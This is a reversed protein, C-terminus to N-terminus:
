LNKKAQEIIADWTWVTHTTQKFRSKLNRAERAHWARKAIPLEIARSRKKHWAHLGRWDCGTTNTHKM